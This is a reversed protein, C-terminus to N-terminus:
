PSPTATLWWGPSRGWLEVFEALGVGLRMRAAGDKRKGALPLAFRKSKAGGGSGVAQENMIATWRHQGKKEREVNKDSDQYIDLVV